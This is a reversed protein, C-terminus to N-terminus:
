RPRLAGATGQLGPPRRESGALLRRYREISPAMGHRTDATPDQRPSAAARFSYPVYLTPCRAGTAPLRRYAGWAADYERLHADMAKLNYRGTRDGEVGWLMVGWGHAIVAYLLAGYRSSLRAFATTDPDAFVIADALGVIGYWTSAARGKEALVDERRGTRSIVTFDRALDLDSGGLYEDRTWALNQLRLVTSYHGHLVGTASLLALRRFRAREPRALGLAAAYEDFVAAETPGRGLAWQSLVYANLECWLEDAIYPGNWGGGRSWTLVGAFTPKGALDALGIPAPQTGLEEFGEIVGHAIYNPHAGKGEYERQCEVEVIQQHRGLGLTPNFAVTRWFDGDTHKIAFALLPHPRIRDAVSLYYSPSTTFGDFAWTRYLVLKGRKVCVEERLIDLLVLHSAPGHVIPDSGTHYPLDQLYVEGTRIVLGDLAPFRTFIEALAVRLLERTMPKQLSITGSPDLISEGYREVLRTPLVIMDTHYLAKLGANRIGETQREIQQANREVWARADSGRPLIDPAVGDYTIATTPPRWDAVVQGDYGWAALKRPDKFTTKTPPQGPNDFVVDLM